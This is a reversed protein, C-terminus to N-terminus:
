SPTIRIPRVVAGEIGRRDFIGPIEKRILNYSANIDANIRTKVKKEKYMGRSERYGSFKISAADKDGHNPIPDLSLFSSRSTYSEERVIVEIGAMKGKYILM